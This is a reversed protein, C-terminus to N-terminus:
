AYADEPARPELVTAVVPCVSMCAGCGTCADINVSPQFPRGIQPMFSIAGQPCIDRCSQCDIFNLALCHEAIRLAHPLETEHQHRLVDNPCNAQCEGCFTCEGRTFDLFPLDDAITIISSPCHAVCLSCGACSSSVSHDFGPPRPIYNNRGTRGFLFSRRTSLSHDM